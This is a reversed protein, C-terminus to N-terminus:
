AVQLAKNRNRIWVFGVGLLLTSGFLVMTGPEPVATVLAIGANTTVPTDNGAVNTLGGNFYSSYATEISYVGSQALSGASLAYAARVEYINGLALTINGDTFAATFLDTTISGSLTAAAVSQNTTVNFLSINGTGGTATSLTKLGFGGLVLGSGTSSTTFRYATFSGASSSAANGAFSVVVDARLGLSMSGLVLVAFIQKSIM